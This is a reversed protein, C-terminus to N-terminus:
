MVNGQPSILIWNKEYIGQYLIEEKSRWVTPAVVKKGEDDALYQGWWFFSSNSIVFYKFQRLLQLMEWPKIEGHISSTIYKVTGEFYINKKVWEIDDSFVYISDLSQLKSKLYNVGNIYYEPSCIDCYAKNTGETFDGKRVGVCIAKEKKRKIERLINLARKNQEFGVVEFEDRLVKKIHDFYRCDEFFGVLLKNKFIDKYRFSCYGNTLIYLNFLSLIKVWKKEYNFLEIRGGGRNKSYRHYLEYYLKLIVKQFINMRRNDITINNRCKFYELYNIWSDDVANFHQFDFVIRENKWREQLARAHAYSFMQNGMRGLIEVYIM